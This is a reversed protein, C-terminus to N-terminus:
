WQRWRREAAPEAAAPAAPAPAPAARGITAGDDLARIFGLLEGALPQSKLRQAERLLRAALSRNGDALAAVAERLKREAAVEVEALRELAMGCRRCNPNCDYRARCNPCRDM